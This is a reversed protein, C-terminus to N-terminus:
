SFEKIDNKVNMIHDELTRIAKAENNELIAEYIARHEQVSERYRRSRREAYLYYTLLHSKQDKYIQLIRKNGASNIILLHFEEDLEHHKSYEDFYAVDVISEHTTINNTFKKLVDENQGVVELTKKICFLECMLRVDMIDDIDSTVFRRVQMGKRPIAEVLGESVLRNLAEKIPTQSIGLENSLDSIILRQGSAYKRLCIDEKLRNYAVDVLPIKESGNTVAM